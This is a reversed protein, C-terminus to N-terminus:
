DGRGAHDLFLRGLFGLAESPEAGVLMDLGTGILPGPLAEVLARLPILLLAAAARPLVRGALGRAGSRGIEEMAAIGDGVLLYLFPLVPVLFRYAPFVDGGVGAVYLGTGAVLLAALSRTWDCRPRRLLAAPLLWLVWGTEYGSFKQLYDWGRPLAILPDGVKAHFTNPLPSGYFWTAWLAYAAAVAVFVAALGVLSHFAAVLQPLATMQVRVAIVTGISGGILVGAFITLLNLGLNPLVLLTTLVAIAMGIMGLLNGRQSTEPHSLGKLAMIFCVSAILYFLAAFNADM